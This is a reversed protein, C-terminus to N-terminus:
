PIYFVERYDFGEEEYIGEEGAGEDFDPDYQGPGIILQLLEEDTIPEVPAVVEGMFDAYVTSEPIEEVTTDFDEVHYEVKTKEDKPLTRESYAMKLIKNKQNERLENAYQILSQIHPPFKVKAEAPNSTQQFKTYPEEREDRAPGEGTERKGQDLALNAFDQRLRQLHPNKRQSRLNM